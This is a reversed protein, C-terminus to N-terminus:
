SGESLVDRHIWGEGVAGNVNWRVRRWMGDASSQLITVQTGRPLEMVKGANLSPQDRVVGNRNQPPPIVTAIKAGAAPPHAPQGAPQAQPPSAPTVPKAAPTQCSGDVCVRDGKCDTDKKCRRSGRESSSCSVLSLALLLLTISTRM